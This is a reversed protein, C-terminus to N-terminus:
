ALSYYLALQQTPLDTVHWDLLCDNVPLQQIIDQLHVYGKRDSLIRKRWVPHSNIYDDSFIRCGL